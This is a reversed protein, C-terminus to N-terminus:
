SPTIPMEQAKPGLHIRRDKEHHETKHRGPVYIWLKGSTDLDYGRMIAVEGPRMGSLCQLEIM